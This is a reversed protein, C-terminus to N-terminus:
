NPPETPQPNPTTRLREIRAGVSPEVDVLAHWRRGTELSAGRRRAAREIADCLVTRGVLEGAADDAAYYQRRVLAIGGLVIAWGVLFTPLVPLSTVYAAAVVAVAVGSALAQPIEIRSRAREVEVAVLARLSEDELGEFAADAVVLTRDGPLGLLDCEIAGDRTTTRVATEVDPAGVDELLQEIREAETESPERLSYGLRPAYALLVLSLGAAFLGVVIALWLM